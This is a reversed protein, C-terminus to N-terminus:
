LTQKKHSFEPRKTSKNKNKAHMQLQMLKETKTNNKTPVSLHGTKECTKICCKCITNILSIRVGCPTSHEYGNYPLKQSKLNLVSSKANLMESYMKPANLRPRFVRSGKGWDEKSVSSKPDPDPPLNPEPHHGSKAVPGQADPPQGRSQVFSKKAAPPESQRQDAAPPQSQQQDRRQDVKPPQVQVDPQSQVAVSSQKQIGVNTPSLFGAKLPWTKMM